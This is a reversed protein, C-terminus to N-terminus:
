LNSLDLKNDEEDNNDKDVIENKIKELDKENLDNFSSNDNQLPNTTNHKDDEDEDDDENSKKLISYVNFYLKILRKYPMEIVVFFLLSILYLNVGCIVGYILVLLSSLNLQTETKYIIFYNVLPTFMIIWFYLKSIQSWMNANFIKFLYHGGSIYSAIMFYHFLYILIDVDISSIILFFISPENDLIINEFNFSFLFPVIFVFFVFTIISFIFHIFNKTERNYDCLKSLFTPIRVMPREKILSEKKSIENQLVYNVIGFLMGILYYDFNFIPNFFFRQYDSDFYFMGPNFDKKQLLIFMIKFILYLFLIIYIIRDLAYQRKYCIFISISGIIFYNCECVLISFIQLINIKGENNNNNNNNNYSFLDLFNRYIMYYGFGYDMKGIIETILYNMLPAGPNNIIFMTPIFFKFYSIGIHLGSLRHIQRFIFNFYASIEIKTTSIKSLLVTESIAQNKFMKKLTKKWLDNEYFRIGESNETYSKNESKDKQKSSYDSSKSLHREVINNNNNDNNEKEQNDIINVKEDDDEENEEKIQQLEFKNINMNALKKDLFNLFKYTLSYGSTSLLIAPATRWFIILLLTKYSKMYKIKEQRESICIPYNFFYIFTTGFIFFFIGLVRVGKIYTLDDNKFIESDKKNNIFENLNDLFSFCEKIKLNIKKAIKKDDNFAYGIKKKPENKFERKYRKKICSGFIKVPIIKVIIFLIQILIFIFPISKIFISKKDDYVDHYMKLNDIISIKEKSYNFTKFQSDVVGFLEKIAEEDCLNDKMCIGFIWLDEKLSSENFISINKKQENSLRPYITYFNFRESKNDNNIDNMNICNYFGSLDIFGKSSGEYIKEINNTRNNNKDMYTDNINNICKKYSDSHESSNSLSENILDQLIEELQTQINLKPFDDFFYIDNVNINLLHQQNSFIISFLSFIYIQYLKM